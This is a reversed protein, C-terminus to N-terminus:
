LWGCPTVHSTRDVSRLLVLCFLELCKLVRTSMTELQRLLVVFEKGSARMCPELSSLFLMQQRSAQRGAAETSDGVQSRGVHDVIQSVAARPCPLPPRLPIPAFIARPALHPALAGPPFHDGNRKTKQSRLVSAFFFLPPWAM